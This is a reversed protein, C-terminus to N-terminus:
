RQRQAQRALAAVRAEVGMIRAAGALDFAMAAQPLGALLVDM